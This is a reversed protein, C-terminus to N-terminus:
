ILKIEGSFIEKVIGNDNIILNGNNSIDLITIEKTEQNILVKVKQGIQPFNQRCIKIYSHEEKIFQQYFINFSALIESLLQNINYLTNTQLFLSTAINDLEKPFKKTNVNIGIGVIICQLDNGKFITETLIGCVKKNNILIDNPWKIHINHNYHKLVEFVSACSLLTLKSINHYSIKPKLLISFTLNEGESDVWQRNERGRGHTQYNAIIVTYNPYQHYNNKLYTNTSDITEFRKIFFDM